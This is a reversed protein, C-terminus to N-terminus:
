IHMCVRKYLGALKKEHEALNRRRRFLCSSPAVTVQVAMTGEVQKLRDQRWRKPEDETQPRGSEAGADM